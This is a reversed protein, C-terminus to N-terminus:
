EAAAQNVVWVGFVTVWLIECLAQITMIPAANGVVALNIFLVGVFLMLTLDCLLVSVNRPDVVHTLAAGSAMFVLLFAFHLAWYDRVDFCLLGIFAWFLMLTLAIAPPQQQFRILMGAISTGGFCSMLFSFLPKDFTMIGSLSRLQSQHQPNYRAESDSYWVCFAVVCAFGWAGPCLNFILLVPMQM